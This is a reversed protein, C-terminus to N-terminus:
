FTKDNKNIKNSQRITYYQIVIFEPSILVTSTSLCSINLRIHRSDRITIIGSGVSIKDKDIQRNNSQSFQILPKPHSRVKPHCNRVSTDCDADPPTM